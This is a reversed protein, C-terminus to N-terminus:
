GLVKMKKSLPFSRISMGWQENYDLKAAYIKNLCIRDVKPNYSWVRISTLQNNSDTVKIVLYPKGKKTVKEIVERPVFWCVQLEPDYESIPPIRFRNLNDRMKNDLVFEWPFKGTLSILNDIKEEKSFSGEPSFNVINEELEKQTKPRSVAVASWFHKDGSFRSDILGDLARSRCLVDLSKKNLKSYDIEERFLLDEASSFPRYQLIQEIAKEGLGKLSLLPQILTNGEGSCWELRSLNINVPQIEFGLGQVLGIAREKKEESENNLFAAVWHKAHYHLLYGCTYTIMAYSTSHSNSVSIDNAFFTHEPHDIELDYTEEEECPIVETIFDEETGLSRRNKKSM